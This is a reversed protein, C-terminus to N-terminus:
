GPPAHAAQFCFVRDSLAGEAMAWRSKGFLGAEDGPQIPKVSASVGWRGDSRSLLRRLCVPSLSCLYIAPAARTGFVYPLRSSFVHCSVASAASRRRRMICFLFSCPMLLYTYCSQSNPCSPKGRRACCQVRPFLCLLDARRPFVRRLLRRLFDGRRPYSIAACNKLHSAM